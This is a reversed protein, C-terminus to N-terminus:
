PMLYFRLLRTIRREIQDAKLRDFEPLQLQIYKFYKKSIVYM